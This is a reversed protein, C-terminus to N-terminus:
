VSWGMQVCGTTLFAAILTLTLIVPAHIDESVIRQGSQIKTQRGLFLGLSYLMFLVSIGLYGYSVLLSITGLSEFKLITLAMMGLLVSVSLWHLFTRENAMHTKPEVKGAVPVRASACCGLCGVENNLLPTEETAM